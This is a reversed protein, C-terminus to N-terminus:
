HMTDSCCKVQILSTNVYLGIKHLVSDMTDCAFLCTHIMCYNCIYKFYQFFVVDSCDCYLLNQVNQWQTFCLFSIWHMDVDQTLILIPYLFLKSLIIMVYWYSCFWLMFPNVTSYFMISTGSIKYLAKVLGSEGDYITCM